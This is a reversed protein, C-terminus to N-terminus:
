PQWTVDKLVDREYLKMANTIQTWGLYFKLDRSGPCIRRLEAAWRCRGAVMEEPALGTVAIDFALCRHDPIEWDVEIVSRVLRGPFLQRTMTLVPELYPTLNHEVAFALVDPPWTWHATATPATM